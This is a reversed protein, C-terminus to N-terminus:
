VPHKLVMMVIAALPTLTAILGWIDWEKYVKNFKGWDFENSDDPSTLTLNYLRRQLPAVRFMFALGSISFMIISWLIWGTGLIPLRGIGAAAFGGLTIIIVGPITFIRDAKIIGRVVFNILKVDKTRTAFYMWFLGTIINGLFLMVSILHILKLFSYSM